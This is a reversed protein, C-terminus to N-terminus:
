NRALERAVPTLSDPRYMNRVNWTSYRMDRKRQKNRVLHDTWAWHVHIRGKDLGTKYHPTNPVKDLVLSSSLWKDATWSHKNLINGVVRWIPPREEM